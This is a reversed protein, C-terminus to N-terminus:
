ARGDVARGGRGCEGADEDDGREVRGVEGGRHGVGGRRRVEVFQVDRGPGAGGMVGFEELVLPEIHQVAAAGCGHLDEGAVVLAAPECMQAELRLDSACQRLDRPLGGGGGAVGVVAAVGGDGALVRVHALDGVLIGPQGLHDVVAPRPALEVPDGVAVVELSDADGGDGALLVTRKGRLRRLLPEQQHALQVGALDGGTIDGVAPDVLQDVVVAAVLGDGLQHLVGLEPHDRHRIRVTDVDHLGTAVRWLQLALVGVAGM